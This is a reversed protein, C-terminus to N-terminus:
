VINNITLGVFFIILYGYWLGTLVYNMGRKYAKPENKNKEKIVIINKRLYFACAALGILSALILLVYTM